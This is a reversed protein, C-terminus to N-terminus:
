AVQNMPYAMHMIIELTRRPIDVIQMYANVDKHPPLPVRFCQINHASLKQNLRGAGKEGADDPDYAIYVKQIKKDLLFNFLEDTFGNVGYSCTVNKYGNDWFSIADIISECIIIERENSQSLHQVNFIGQLKQPLYRHKRSGKETKIHRSYIQVINGSHDFIPITISDKFREIIHSLKSPPFVLKLRKLNEVIEIKQQTDTSNDHTLDDQITGDCYGIHFYEIAKESIKRGALYQRAEPNQNLRLNYYEIVQNQLFKPSPRKEKQEDQFYQPYKESLIRIAQGVAVNELVMIWDIISGGKKCAGLCCWLNKEPNV